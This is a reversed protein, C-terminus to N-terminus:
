LVNVLSLHRQFCSRATAAQPVESTFFKLYNHYSVPVNPVHSQFERCTNM